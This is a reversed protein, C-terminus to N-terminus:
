LTPQEFLLTTAEADEFIASNSSHKEIIKEHYDSSNIGFILQDRIRENLIKRFCGNGARLRNTYETMSEDNVICGAFNIKEAFLYLKKAM